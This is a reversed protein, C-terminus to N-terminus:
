LRNIERTINKQSTLFRKFDRGILSTSLNFKILFTNIADTKKIEYTMESQNFQTIKLFTIQDIIDFLELFEDDFLLKIQLPDNTLILSPNIFVTKICKQLDLFLIFIYFM